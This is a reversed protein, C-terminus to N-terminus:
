RPRPHPVNAKRRKGFGTEPFAVMGDCGRARITSKPVASATGSVKASVVSAAEGADGDGLETTGEVAQIGRCGDVDGGGCDYEDM